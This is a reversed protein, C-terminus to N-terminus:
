ESEQEFRSKFNPDLYSDTEGEIPDEGKHYDPSHIYQRWQYPSVFQEPLEKAYAAVSHWIQRCASCRIVRDRGTIHIVTWNEPNPVRCTCKAQM